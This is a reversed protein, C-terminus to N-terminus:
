KKRRKLMALGGLALLGMTAPEPTGISGTMTFDVDSHSTPNFRIELSTASSLASTIGTFSSFLVDYRIPISSDPITGVFLAVDAGNHVEIEIDTYQYDGGDIRTFDLNFRDTGGATLDFGGLGEANVLSAPPGVVDADIGDYQLTAAVGPSGSNFVFSGEGITGAYSVAGPTGLVDLLLDRQGGLTDVHNVKVLTPDPDNLDIVTVVRPSTFLDITYAQASIATVMVFACASVGLHLLKSSSM